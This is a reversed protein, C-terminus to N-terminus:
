KKQFEKLESLRKKLISYNAYQNIQVLIEFLPQIILSVINLCVMLQGISFSPLLQFAYIFLLLFIIMAQSAYLIQNKNIVNKEAKTDYQQYNILYKKTKQLDVRNTLDNRLQEFFLYESKRKEELLTRHKKLHNICYIFIPILIIFLLLFWISFSLLIITTGIILSFNGLFEFLFSLLMIKLQYADQIRYIIEEKDRSELFNTDLNYIDKLTNQILQKDSKKFMKIFIKNKFWLLGFLAVQLILYQMFFQRGYDLMKQMSFSLFIMSIAEIISLLPIFFYYMPIKRYQKKYNKIKIEIPNEVLVVMNTSIKQLEELKLQKLYPNSSDIVKFKNKRKSTVVIYHFYNDKQIVIIFPKIQHLNLLQTLNIKAVIVTNFFCLLSKKIEKLTNGDKQYTITQNVHQYSIKYSRLLNKIACIGCEHAYTQYVLSEKMSDGMIIYNFLM